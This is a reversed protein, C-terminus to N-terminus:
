NPSCWTRLTPTTPEFGMGDVLNDRTNEDSVSPKESRALFKGSWMAQTLRSIREQRQITWQAYHKRIIEPTSALVIAVDECTWGKELLATALTHRFRHAHAGKVESIEFVRALTRTTGRIFARTTGNGSWFFHQSEGKTSKPLPLEALAQEMFHPIPRFVPKGNKMTHLFVSHDRVRDRRLMSVDSIRMGTYRLLLVLARARLREYPARGLRDCAALIKNVEEETYPEKPKSKVGPSKVEKAPNFGIWKRKICFSLFNRLIALEKTWTAANIPRKRRYLDITEVEVDELRTINASKAIALFNNLARRHNRKANDLQASIQRDTSLLRNDCHRKRTAFVPRQDILGVQVNGDFRALKAEVQCHREAARPGILGRFQYLVRDQVAHNGFAPGVTSTVILLLPPLSFVTYYALAAAESPCDDIVFAVLTKRFITALEKV